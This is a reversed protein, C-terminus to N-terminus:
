AQVMFPAPGPVPMPLTACPLSMALPFLSSVGPMAPAMAQGGAPQAAAGAGSHDPRAQTPSTIDHISARRKDKKNLSNLRIFYKQAHSAVQVRAAPRPPHPPCARTGIIPVYAPAHTGCPNAWAPARGRGMCVARQPQSPMAKDSNLQVTNTLRSIIRLAVHELHAAAAQAATDCPFARPACACEDRGRGAQMRCAHM